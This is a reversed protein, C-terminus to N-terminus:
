ISLRVKFSGVLLYSGATTFKFIYSAHRLWANSAHVATLSLYCYRNRACAPVYASAAALCLPSGSFNWNEFLQLSACDLSQQESLTVWDFM